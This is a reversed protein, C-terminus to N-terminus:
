VRWVAPPGSATELQAARWDKPSAGFEGHFWRTFSSATAYGLIDSIEIIPQTSGALHQQALGRKVQNLLNGFTDGENELNRQLSRANRNLNAAVDELTAHGSPLMLAISHKTQDSVPARQAPLEVDQLLRRANSAMTTDALPLLIELSDTSCSLGNFSSGFELPANFFAEFRARDKPAKHTFHVAEPAWRGESAGVLTLHGIAITLDAAQRRNYPPILDLHILAVDKGRELAVFAVDGFNRRFLISADVVEGVTGLHQLLLSVPGLSAFSRCQAMRIGFSDCGSRKASRELL